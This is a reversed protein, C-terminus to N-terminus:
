AVCDMEKQERGKVTCLVITRESVLDIGRGASRESVLNDRELGKRVCPRGVRCGVTAWMWTFALASAAGTADYALRAM